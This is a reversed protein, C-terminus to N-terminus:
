VLKHIHCSVLKHSPISSLGKLENDTIVNHAQGLTTAPDEWVSRGVKAKGKSRTTLPRFTMMELFPTPSSQTVFLSLPAPTTTLSVNRQDSPLILCLNM